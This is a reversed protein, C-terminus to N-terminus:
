AAAPKGKQLSEPLFRDIEEDTLATDDSGATVKRSAEYMQRDAPPANEYIAHVDKMLADRWHRASNVDIAGDRLDSMLARYQERIRWLRASCARHADASADFDFMLNILVVILAVSTLIATAVAYGFGRGFVAAFATVAAAALLLAEAARLVRGRRAHVHAAQAHAKQRYIVHGFTLRLHDVLSLDFM